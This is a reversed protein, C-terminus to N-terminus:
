EKRYGGKVMVYCGTIARLGRGDKRPVIVLSNKILGEGAKVNTGQTVNIIGENHENGLAVAQGSRLIMETGADALLKEEAKLEVIIFTGKDSLIEEKLEARLKEIEILAEKNTKEIRELEEKLEELHLTTEKTVTTDVKDDEVEVQQKTQSTATQERSGDLTAVVIVSVVAIVSLIGLFILVSSRKM